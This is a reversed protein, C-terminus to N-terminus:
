IEAQLRGTTARPAPQRYPLSRARQFCANDVGRGCKISTMTGGNNAPSLNLGGGCM